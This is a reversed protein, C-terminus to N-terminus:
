SKEVVFTKSLKDHWGQKNKDFFIWIFGIFLFLYSVIKSTNRKISQLLTLRKKNEDVVKIGMLVKGFTGQKKSAEMLICYVVWVLFSVERIRNREKLFTTRPEINTGRNFYAKLTQDFDYFLYFIGFVIIAIPVIDILYAGIRKGRQAIENQFVM